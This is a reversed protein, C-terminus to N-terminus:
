QRGSRKVTTAPTARGRGAPADAKEPNGPAPNAGNPSEAQAMWARSGSTEEPEALLSRHFKDFDIETGILSYRSQVLVQDPGMHPAPLDAVLVRGRRDIVRRFAQKM